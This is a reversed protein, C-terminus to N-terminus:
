VVTLRDITSIYDKLFECLGFYENYINTVVKMYCLIEKQKRLTTKM